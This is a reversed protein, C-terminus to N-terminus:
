VAPADWFVYVAGYPVQVTEGGGCAGTPAVGGSTHLRNIYDAKSLVGKGSHTAVQLLLEPVAGARPSSAM